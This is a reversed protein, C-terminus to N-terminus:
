RLKYVCPKLIRAEDEDVDEGADELFRGKKRWQQQQQQQKGDGGSPQQGDDVRVFRMTVFMRERLDVAPSAPLGRGDVGGDRALAFGRRRLAAVFPRVDTTDRASADDAEDAGAWAAEEDVEHGADDDGDGDGDGDGGEGGRGKRGSAGAGANGGRAAAAAVAGSHLASVPARRPFRSKVEAVWLEGARPRLVRRAEAVFAPWNTGMLALAAVAVDVTGAALPLAAMDAREVRVVTAAAAAAAKGPKAGAAPAPVPFEAACLDFSRVRVRLQAGAAADAALTRAIVADGAGLDAVTCTGDPGRPLPLLQGRGREEGRKMKKGETSRGPGGGGAAARARLAAAFVGAPTSPWAAVAARFGAHYDAYLQPTAAFLRASERSATTYLQENLHRFRATALKAHMKAQLPTLNAPAPPAPAPVAPPRASATAPVLSSASPASTQKKPKEKSENKPKNPQDPKGVMAPISPRPQDAEADKESVVDKKSGDERKSKTRRRKKKPLPKGEIHVQWLKDVNDATVQTSKPQGDRKRKLNKKGSAPSEAEKREGGRAPAHLVQTKLPAKISWGPVSFMTTTNAIQQQL